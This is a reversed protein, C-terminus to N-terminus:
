QRRSFLDGSQLRPGSQNYKGGHRQHSSAQSRNGGSHGGRRWNSSAAGRRYDEDEADANENYAMVQDRMREREQLAAEEQEQYRVAFRSDLPVALETAGVKGKRSLLQFTMQPTGEEDSDDDYDNFVEPKSGRLHAPVGESLIHGGGKNSSVGSESKRQTISEAMMAQFERDFSDEMERVQKAKQGRSYVEAEEAAIEAAIAARLDDEEEDEEEEAINDEGEELCEEGEEDDEEEHDIDEWENEDELMADEDGEDLTGLAEVPRASSGSLGRSEARAKVKERKNSAQEYTQIAECAEEYSEYRTLRPRVQLFTDQLDFDVDIPLEGKSLYYRQFYRLFIDLKRRTSGKNFFGGVVGLLTCVLRVRTFDNPKDKAIDSAHGPAHGLTIISYLTDFITHSDVLRATYLEGLLKMNTLRRQMHDWKNFEIGQRLNELVADVVRVPLEPQFRAVKTLLKGVLPIHNYKLRTCDCMSEVVYPLVESWPLKRLQNSVADLAKPKGLETYLLHQIYEHLPPREVVRKKMAQPPKATLVANEVQPM